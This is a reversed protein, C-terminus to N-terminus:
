TKKIFVFSFGRDTFGQTYFLSDFFAPFPLSPCKEAYYILQDVQRNKNITFIKTKKERQERNCKRLISFPLKKPPPTESIIRCCQM